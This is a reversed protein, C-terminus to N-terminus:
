DPGKPIRFECLSPLETLLAVTVTHRIPFCSHESAAVLGLARSPRKPLYLHLTPLELRPGYLRLM